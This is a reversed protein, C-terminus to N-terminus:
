RAPSIESATAAVTSFTLQAPALGPSTASLVITGPKEDAGVLVLCLGHSALRQSGRDPQHTTPDGNGTGAVYGAGTARFTVFNSADPVVRGQQDVVSVAVMAVDEGNAKLAIDDKSLKLAYPAGTTEETETAAVNDGENYGKVTLTGPAYPVSWEAHRYKPMDKIGLSVGNLFLEVRATNGWCYVRIPKGEQGQLNWDPFVHVLPKDGWWAKYYYADDKMFGAEDLLGFNSNVDPWGYPTPEGKYDFGTWVFGGAMFPQSAMPQWTDEPTQAWGPAWPYNDILGRADDRAYVGRAAVTSGIESGYLPTDPHKSHYWTYNGPGYNFGQIDEVLSIGSGFGGNMACTIPRTKDYTHVVDMMASFIRKGDDSGQLPEENCMSWMIVSPHNRDRQILEKLDSLDSAPTGESTKANYTDGLHRNEDMVLMGQRDCSDLLEDAVMNHSTRFANCGIEKLKKTRWSLVSDPMATGVGAFDEHNCVGQIEVRKGNLFFGNNADFRITRIGFPTKVRDVPQGNELVTTVLSYMHPTDVSWLQPTKVETSQAFDQSAGPTLTEKTETKAVLSNDPSYVESILTFDNAKSDANSVTTTLSLNALSPSSVDAGPVTSVVYTGWPAVHLPNAINLWVHRYIGGGEYWWGEGHTPDVSVAIVNPKGFRVSQSIDYRSPTYGSQHEGIKVGNLYVVSDRYIGDFDIWISKGKDNSPVVFSKRYWAKETPLSGHSADLGEAFAQEVVYDHPVHVTRWDSDNYGAAYPVIAAVTDGLVVKGSIGGQGATNQVLVTLVNPGGAKWASDLPVDFPDDWGEHHILHVGNLYVDANDDVSRFHLARNPGAVDPLVTRYWNFGVRGQFTDQGVVANAWDAGSSNFAAAGLSAADIARNDDQKWRWGTISVANKLNTEDSLHFKWGADMSISQRTDAFSAPCLAIAAIPAVILPVVLAYAKPLHSM